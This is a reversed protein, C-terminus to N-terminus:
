GNASSRVTAVFSVRAEHVLVGGYNGHGISEIGPPIAIYLKGGLLVDAEFSRVVRDVIRQFLLESEEADALAMRGILLVKHSQRYLLSAAQQNNLAEIQNDMGLRTVEWAHAKQSTVNLKFFDAWFKTLRLYNHIAGIGDVAKLREVLLPLVLDWTM